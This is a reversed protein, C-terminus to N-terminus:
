KGPPFDALYLHSESAAFFQQVHVLLPPPLLV